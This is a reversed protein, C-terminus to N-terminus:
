FPIMRSSLEPVTMWLPFCKEGLELGNLESTDSRPCLVTNFWKSVMSREFRWLYHSVGACSQSVGTSQSELVPVLARAKRKGAASRPKALIQSSSWAFRLAM